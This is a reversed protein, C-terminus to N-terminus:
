AGAKELAARQGQTLSGEKGISVLYRAGELIQEETPEPAKRAPQPNRHLVTKGKAPVKGGYLQLDIAEIRSDFDATGPDNLPLRCRQKLLDARLAELERPYLKKLKAEWDQRNVPPLVAEGGEFHSNGGVKAKKHECDAEAGRRLGSRRHGATPKPPPECNAEAGRRLRSRAETAAQKPPPECNAEASARLESRDAIATEHLFPNKGSPQFNEEVRLGSSRVGTGPIQVQGPERAGMGLKDPRRQRVGNGWLGEVSTKEGSHKPPHIATIHYTDIPWANPMPQSSMWIFGETVLEHKWTWVTRLSVGFMEALKTQSITVVGPRINSAQRVALDLIKVFMLRSGLHLSNNCIVEDRASLIMSTLDQEIPAIRFAKQHPSTPLYESTATM